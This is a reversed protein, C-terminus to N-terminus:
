RRGSKGVRKRRALKPEEVLPRYIEIRDGDNLQQDRRAVKGFIGVASNALDVGLFDPDSAVLSLADAIMAGAPLSFSKVVSCHPQAYVIEIRLVSLSSVTSKKRGCWSPM